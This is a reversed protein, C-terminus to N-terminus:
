VDDLLGEFHQAEGPPTSLSSSRPFDATPSQRQLAELTEAAARTEEDLTSTTVGSELASPLPIDKEGGTPDM